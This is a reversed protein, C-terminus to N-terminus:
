VAKRNAHDQAEKPSALEFRPFKDGDRYVVELKHITYKGGLSLDCGRGPAVVDKHPGAETFRGICSFALHREVEWFYEGAGANILDTASQITGCVPCIFACDEKAVGQDKLAVAFEGLTMIKM